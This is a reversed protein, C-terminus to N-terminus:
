LGLRATLYLARPDAPAFLRQAGDYWVYAYRADALNRLQAALELQPVVRVAAEATLTVYRGYRGQSNAPDLEYSSQGNGWLSLRWREAPVVDVGGTFVHRPVHDIDNGAQAPTAPPPVRITARQYSYSGWLSVQRAPRVTLQVDLGRRRTAGLNDVDGTPDNLRRRLEGSATQQWVAIRAEVAHGRTLKVGGEFGENISPAVDTLRPPILYSGSGVGIQFTRGYNGYLTVGDLAALAIAVKPQGITHQNASLTSGANEDLLSGPRPPLTLGASNRTM